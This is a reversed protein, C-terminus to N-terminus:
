NGHSVIHNDPEFVTFKFLDTDIDNGPEPDVPINKIIQFNSIGLTEYALDFLLPVQSWACGLLALTNM